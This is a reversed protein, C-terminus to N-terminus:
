TKAMYVQVLWKVKSDEQLATILILNSKFVGFLAPCM